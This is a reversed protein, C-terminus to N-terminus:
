ARWFFRSHFLVMSLTCVQATDKSKQVFFDQGASSPLQGYLIWASAQKLWAAEAATILSLATQEIDLYGTQLETRLKGILQAGRCGNGQNVTIIYQAMAWLWELRRTWVSLESIVPTLPAINYAGVISSDRRLISDELELAKRRFATLHISKITTAVAHSITSIHSVSMIQAVLSQLKINMDGLHAATALLEHESPALSVSVDPLIDARLLPSSNGSLLFVVEHLMASIQRVCCAGPLSESPGLHRVSVVILPCLFAEPLTAVARLPM